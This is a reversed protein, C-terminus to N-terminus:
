TRVYTIDLPWSKQDDRGEVIQITTVGKELPEPDTVEEPPLSSIAAELAEGPGEAEYWETISVVVKYRKMAGEKEAACAPCGGEDRCQKICPLGLRQIEALHMAPYCRQCGM